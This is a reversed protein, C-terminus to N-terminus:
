AGVAEKGNRGVAGAVVLGDFGEGNAFEAGVCAGAEVMEPETVAGDFGCLALELQVFEVDQVFGAEAVADHVGVDVAGCGYCVRGAGAGVPVVGFAVVRACM